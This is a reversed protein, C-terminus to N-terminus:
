SATSRRHLAAHIARNLTDIVAPKAVFECVGVRRAAEEDHPRLYGSTLLVPIEPRLRLIKRALDLGSMGPMALDTVVLDFGAPQEYFAKLAETPDTFGTFSYGCKELGRSALYVLREEDDVYLIRQGSGRLAVPPAPSAEAGGSSAAPFYLHFTTGEGPESHVTIAGDHGRVIGDGQQLL